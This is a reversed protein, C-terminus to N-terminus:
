LIIDPVSKVSLCIGRFAMHFIDNQLCNAGSAGLVRGSAAKFMGNWSTQLPGQWSLCAVRAKATASCTRATVVPALKM